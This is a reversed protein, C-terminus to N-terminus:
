GDISVDGDVIGERLEDIEDKLEDPVEDELENYPALGVGDNELTGSYPEGDLSGDMALEIAEFVANDM